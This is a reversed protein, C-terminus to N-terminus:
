STEREYIVSCPDECARSGCDVQTVSPYTIIKELNSELERSSIERNLCKHITDWWDQIFQKYLKDVAVEFHPKQKPQLEELSDRFSTVDVETKNDAITKVLDLDCVPERTWLEWMMVGAGYVDDKAKYCVRNKNYFFMPNVYLCEILRVTGTPELNRNGETSINTM